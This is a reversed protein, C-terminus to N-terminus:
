GLPLWFARKQLICRGASSSYKLLIAQQLLAHALGAQGATTTLTEHRCEHITWARNERRGPVIHDVRPSHDNVMGRSMPWQTMERRRTAQFDVRREPLM